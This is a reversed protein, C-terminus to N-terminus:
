RVKLVYDVSSVDLRLEKSEKAKKEMNIDSCTRKLHCGLISDLIENSEKEEQTEACKKNRETTYNDVIPDLTGLQNKRRQLRCVYSKEKSRQKTDLV